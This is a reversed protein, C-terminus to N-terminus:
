TKEEDTEEADNKNKEQQEQTLSYIYEFTELQENFSLAHDLLSRVTDDGYFMELEYISQLHESFSNVMQQLDGLEESVSLLQIITARVYVILGINLIASISLTALLITELKSM